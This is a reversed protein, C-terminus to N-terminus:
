FILRLLFRFLMIVLWAHIVWAIAMTLVAFGYMIPYIYKAWINPLDGSNVVEQTWRTAKIKAQSPVGQILTQLTKRVDAFVDGVLKLIWPALRRIFLIALGIQQVM